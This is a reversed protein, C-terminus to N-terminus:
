SQLPSAPKTTPSETKLNVNSTSPSSVTVDNSTSTQSNDSTTNETKEKPTKATPEPPSPGPTPPTNQNPQNIMTQAQQDPNAVVSLVELPGKNSSIALTILENLSVVGEAVELSRLTKVPIGYEGIPSDSSINSHRPVYETHKETMFEFLEIKINMNFKVKLKGTAVVRSGDEYDYIMSAKAEVIASPHPMQGMQGMFEKVNNMTLQISTVGSEFNVHFFSMPPSPNQALTMVQGPLRTGNINTMNPVMTPFGLNINSLNYAQAQGMALMPTIGRPPNPMNVLGNALNMGNTYAAPNPNSM